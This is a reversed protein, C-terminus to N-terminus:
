AAGFKDALGQLAGAIDGGMGKEAMERMPEPIEVQISYDVQSGEGAESVVFTALFGELRPVGPPLDQNPVMEYSLIRKDDDRNAIRDLVTNGRKMLVVRQGEVDGKEASTIHPQWEAVNYFDRVYAWVEDAPAALKITQSVKM